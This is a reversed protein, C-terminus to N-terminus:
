RSNDKKKASLTHLVRVDRENIIVRILERSKVFYRFLRSIVTRGGNYLRKLLSLTPWRPRLFTDCLGSLVNFIVVSWDIVNQLSGAPTYARARAARPKMDRSFPLIFFCSSSDRRREICARRQAARRRTRCVAAVAGVRVIVPPSTAYLRPIARSPLTFCDDLSEIEM